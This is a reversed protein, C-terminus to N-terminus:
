AMLATHRIMLSVSGDNYTEKAMVASRGGVSATPRWDLKSITGITEEIENMLRNQSVDVLAGYDDIYVDHYEDLGKFEVRFSYTNHDDAQEPPNVTIQDEGMLGTEFKAMFPGLDVTEMKAAALSVFLFSLALVIVIFVKTEIKM